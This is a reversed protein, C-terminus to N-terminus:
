GSVVRWTGDPQKCATGYATANTGDVTVSQQFERCATGGATTFRDQPTISGTHGSDKNNWYIPKGSQGAELARQTAERMLATDSGNLQRGIHGGLQSGAMSGVALALLRTDDDLVPQQPQAETQPQGVPGGATCAELLALAALVILARTPKM